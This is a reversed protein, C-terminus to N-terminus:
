VSQIHSETKLNALSLIQFSANNAFEVKITAKEETLMFFLYEALEFSTMKEEDIDQPLFRKQIPLLIFYKEDIQKLREMSVLHSYSYFHFLDGSAIPLNLVKQLLHYYTKVTMLHQDVAQCFAQDMGALVRHCTKQQKGNGMYQVSADDSLAVDKLYAAIEKLSDTEEILSEFKLYYPIKNIDVLLYHHEVSLVINVTPKQSNKWYIFFIDGDKLSSSDINSM